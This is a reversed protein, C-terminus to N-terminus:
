ETRIYAIRPKEVGNFQSAACITYAGMNGWVLWDGVECQPFDVSEYLMDLGDCTPGFMRSRAPAATVTEGTARFAQPLAPTYHDYLMCNFSGYVGDALYYLVEPDDGVRHRVVRGGIVKAALTGTGHSFFRGPEAIVAIGEEPFLRGLAENVVAALGEMTVTGTDDGPMGGGIDLLGLPPLGAEAAM